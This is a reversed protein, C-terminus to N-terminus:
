QMVDMFVAQALAVNGKPSLTVMHPEGYGGCRDMGLGREGRVARFILTAKQERATLCAVIGAADLGAPPRQQPQSWQALVQLVFNHLLRQTPEVQM